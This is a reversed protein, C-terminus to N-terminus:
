FSERYNRLKETSGVPVMGNSTLSTAPHNRLLLIDGQGDTSLLRFTQNFAEGSTKATKGACFLDIDDVFMFGVLQILFLSLACIMSVRHGAKQMMRFLITSILCWLSPGLGNGQSIGMIPVNEDGYVAESRGFGTKIHHKAKQLTSFLVKCVRQPVGFSMPSLVAIPHSIADYCGKADLIAVAGARKQQRFVDCVPLDAHFASYM